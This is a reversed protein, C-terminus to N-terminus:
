EEKWMIWEPAPAFVKVILRDIFDRRSWSKEVVSSIPNLAEMGMVSDGPMCGKSVLRFIEKLRYM